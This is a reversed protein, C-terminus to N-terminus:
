YLPLNTGKGNTIRLIGSSKGENSWQCIFSDTVREASKNRFFKEHNEMKNKLKIDKVFREKEDKLM